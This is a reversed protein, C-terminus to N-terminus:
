SLFVITFCVLLFNVIELWTTHNRTQKKLLFWLLIGYAVPLALLFYTATVISVSIIFLMAFLMCIFSFIMHLKGRNVIGASLFGVGGILGLIKSFLGIDMLFISAVLPVITLFYFVGFIIDKNGWSKPIYFYLDSISAKVGCYNWMIAILTFWFFMSTVVLGIEM